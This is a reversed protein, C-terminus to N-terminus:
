KVIYRYLEPKGSAKSILIAGAEVITKNRFRNKQIQIIFYKNDYRSSKIQQVDYAMYNGDNFVITFRDLKYLEPKPITEISIISENNTETITIRDDYQAPGPLEKRETLCSFFVTIITMILTFFVRKTKQEKELKRISISYKL